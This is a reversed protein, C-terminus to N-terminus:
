DFWLPISGSLDPSRLSFNVESLKQSVFHLLGSKDPYDFWLPISVCLFLWKIFARKLKLRVMTSNLRLKQIKWLAVMTLKLRVMTSNLCLSVPLLYVQHVQKLRVMTSNLSTSNKINNTARGRKLRVMTSNLSTGNWKLFILWWTKISGYHFQSRCSRICRIM